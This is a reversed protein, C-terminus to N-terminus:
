DDSSRNLLRGPSVSLISRWPAEKQIEGLADDDFLSEQADGRKKAVLDADTQVRGDGRIHRLTVGESALVRGVLLHRHCVIPDEESCMLAVRAGRAIGRKLRAVGERFLDSEAVRDYRVHGEDDYFADGDPRGGLTDGFFAYHLGHATVAEKLPAASFQPAFKSYPQSRVDALVAIQHADLLELFREIAHHSHGVTWLNQGGAEGPLDNNEDPQM